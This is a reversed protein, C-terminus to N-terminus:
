FPEVDEMPSPEFTIWDLEYQNRPISVPIPNEEGQWGVWYMYPPATEDEPYILSYTGMRPLPIAETSDSFTWRIPEAIVFTRIDERVEVTEGDRPGGTCRYRPM